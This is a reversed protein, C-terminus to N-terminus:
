LIKNIILEQYSPDFIFELQSNSQVGDETNLRICYRYNYEKTLENDQWDLLLYSISGKNEFNKVNTDFEIKSKWSPSSKIKFTPTAVSLFVQSTLILVLIFRLLKM